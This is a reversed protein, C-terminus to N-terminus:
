ARMLGVDEAPGCANVRVVALWTDDGNGNRISWASPGTVVRCLLLMAADNTRSNSM